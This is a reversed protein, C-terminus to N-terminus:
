LKNLMASKLNLKEEEKAKRLIEYAKDLEEQSVKGDGNSDIVSELKRYSEPLICYKSNENFVFNSLIIFVATIIFAIILDRSGMFAITFILVERAINKFIMEQGKTLKLEIFRSGLNMFIMMLGIFLKSTSLNELFNTLSFKGNKYSLSNKKNNNNNNSKNKNDKNNFIYNFM